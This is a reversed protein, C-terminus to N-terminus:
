DDLIWICHTTQGGECPLSDAAKRSFLLFRNKKCGTWEFISPYIQLASFALLVTPGVPMLLFALLVPIKFLLPNPARWFRAIHERGSLIRSLGSVDHSPAETRHSSRFRRCESISLLIKNKLIPVARTLKIEEFNM